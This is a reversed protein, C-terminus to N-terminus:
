INGYHGRTKQKLESIRLLLDKESLAYGLNDNELSKIYGDDSLVFPKSFYKGVDSDLPSRANVKIELNGGTSSVALDNIFSDTYTVGDIEISQFIRYENVVHVDITTDEEITYKNNIKDWKVNDGTIYVSTGDTNTIVVDRAYTPKISFIFTCTLAVAFIASLIVIFLNKKNKM